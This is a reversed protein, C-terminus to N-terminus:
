RRRTTSVRPRNNTLSTQFYELIERRWRMLTRRLTQLEPMSSGALRDTIVTLAHAACDYGRTRYLLHMAEKGSGDAERGGMM